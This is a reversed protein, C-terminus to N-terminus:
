KGGRRSAGTLDALPLLKLTGEGGDTLLVKREARSLVKEMTEFYLWRRTIEPSLQYKELIRVFRLAEGRATEVTLDKHGRAEAIM